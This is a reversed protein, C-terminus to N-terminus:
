NKATAKGCSLKIAGGTGLREEEVVIEANLRPYHLALYKTIEEHRYGLSFIFREINQTQLYNIVYSIFPKDNVSAMCKPLDPVSSRLRTGLGGALIIAEGGAWLPSSSGAGLPSYQYNTKLYLKM